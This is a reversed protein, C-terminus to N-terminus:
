FIDKRYVEHLIRDAEQHAINIFEHYDDTNKGTPDPVELIEEKSGYWLYEMLLFIKEKAFPYHKILQDKQWQEMVLVVNVRKMISRTISNSQHNRLSFGNLQAVHKVVEHATSGKRAEIGASVIEIRNRAHTYQDQLLKNFYGDLYASRTINARCVILIRFKKKILFM